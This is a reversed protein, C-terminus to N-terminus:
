CGADFAGPLYEIRAGPGKGIISVVDFRLARGGCPYHQLFQMAALVIRRQKQLTITQLPFCVKARTRMRVEVFCVLDGKQVVLDIEGRRSCFNQELIVYGRAELFRRAVGEAERGRERRGIAM